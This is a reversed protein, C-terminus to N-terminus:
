NVPNCIQRGETEEDKLMQASQKRSSWYRYSFHMVAENHQQQMPKSRRMIGRVIKSKQYFRMQPMHKGFNNNGVGKTVRKM